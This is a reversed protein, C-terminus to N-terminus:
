SVRDHRQVSPDVRVHAVQTDLAPQGLVGEVGVAVVEGAEGLGHAVDVGGADGALVEGPEEDVVDGLAEARPGASRPKKRKRTRSRAM